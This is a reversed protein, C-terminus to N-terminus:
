TGRADVSECAYAAEQCPLVRGKETPLSSWNADLAAGYAAVVLSSEGRMSANSIRDPFNSVDYVDNEDNELSTRNACALRSVLRDPISSVLLVRLLPTGNPSTMSARMSSGAM